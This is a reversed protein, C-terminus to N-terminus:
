HKQLKTRIRSLSVPTIGLYSAIYHKPVLAVLEPKEKELEEYRTAPNAKILSTVRHQYDALRNILKDILFRSFTPTEYLVDLLDDKAVTNVVSPVIAELVMEAPQNWFLCEFPGVVDGAQFFEVTVDNGEYNHWLRLCGSEVFYVFQSVEGQRVLCTKRKVETRRFKSQLKNLIGSFKDM